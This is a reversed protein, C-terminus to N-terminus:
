SLPYSYGTTEHNGAEFYLSCGNTCATTWQTRVDQGPTVTTICRSRCHRVLLTVIYVYFAIQFSSM